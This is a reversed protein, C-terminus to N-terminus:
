KFGKFVESFNPMTKPPMAQQMRTLGIGRAGITVRMTRMPQAVPHDHITYKGSKYKTVMGADMLAIVRSVRRLRVRGMPKTGWLWHWMDMKDIKALYAIDRVCLVTSRQGLPPRANPKVGKYRLVRRKLEDAPIIEWGNDPPKDM